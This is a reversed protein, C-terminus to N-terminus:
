REILANVDEKSLREVVERRDEAAKHIMAWILARKVRFEEDLLKASDCYQELARKELAERNEIHFGLHSYIRM